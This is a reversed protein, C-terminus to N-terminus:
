AKGVVDERSTRKARPARSAAGLVAAMTVKFASRLEADHGEPLAKQLLMIATGHAAAWLALAVRTHDEPAGGLREALSRELLAMNPRSERIPRVEGSSKRGSLERAHTFFLEYEHPHRLAYGVYAEGIEEISHQTEIERRLSEQIRRMLARVIDQRNRFRRYV